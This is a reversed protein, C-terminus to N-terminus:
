AADRIEVAYVRMDGTATDSGNAGVRRVRFRLTDGAAISDSNTLTISVQKMLGATGPVADASSTNATDLSEASAFNPTGDGSTVAEITVDAIINGSTASAMSYSIVATGTNTWGQPAVVTWYAAEDTAADYGLYKRAGSADSTQNLEPFTTTKFQASEPTLVFRTSM